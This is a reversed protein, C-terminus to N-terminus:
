TAVLQHAAEETIDPKLDRKKVAKPAEGSM